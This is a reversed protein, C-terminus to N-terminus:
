YWSVRCTGVNTESTSKFVIYENAEWPSTATQLTSSSSVKPVYGKAITTGLLLNNTSTAYATTGTGATFTVTGTSNTAPTQVGISLLSRTLGSQNQIACPTSTSAVMTSSASYVLSGTEVVKNITSTGTVTSSGTVTLDGTLRLATLDTFDQNASAGLAEDAIAAQQISINCGGGAECNVVAAGSLKQSAYLATPILIAAALGM